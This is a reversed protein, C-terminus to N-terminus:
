RRRLELGQHALSRRVQHLRTDVTRPKLAFARAIDRSRWGEVVALWLIRVDRRSLGELDALDLLRRILLRRRESRLVVREPDMDPDDIRIACMRAPHAGCGGGRKAARAARVQDLVVSEAVRGLYRLLGGRHCRRLQRLRLPGGQLLRCYIEQVSEVVQDTRPRLGVRRMVDRVKKRLWLDYAGVVTEWGDAPEDQIQLEPIM